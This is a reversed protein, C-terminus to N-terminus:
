PSLVHAYVEITLRYDYSTRRLIWDKLRHYLPDIPVYPYTDQLYYAPDLWQHITTINSELGRTRDRGITVLWIRAPPQDHLTTQIDPLDATYLQAAPRPGSLYYHGFVSDYDSIVLDGPAARASVFLAAEKAPTLYIPNLFQEGRFDNVLSAGWALCLLGGILWKLKGSALSVWGAALIILFYPLAFLGRVPVNIFPTGTAVFTTTVSIVVIGALCLGGSQWRSHGSGKRLLGAVLLVGVAVLGLWAAPHWPFLTEGVSFTYAATALGLVFGLGSRAFDATTFASVAPVQSTTAFLFWPLFVLSLALMLVLWRRFFVQRSAPWIILLGQAVPVIAGPYFTLLIALSALGYAIWTIWQKQRLAIFLLATSLLSLFLLLSYYRAMRSFEIFAPSFGLLLMAPVAARRNGWQRAVVILLPLGVIACATSFWRLAFDSPGALRMWGHLALFYLPPHIDNRAARVTDAVSGQIMQYTDFEDIWLSRESLQWILLAWSALLILLGPWLGGRSASMM